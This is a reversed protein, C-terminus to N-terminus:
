AVAAGGREGGFVRKGGGGGGANSPSCGDVFASLQYPPADNALWQRVYFLSQSCPVRSGTATVEVDECYWRHHSGSGDSTLNLSCLPTSLCPGRGSFIDLNGREYYDHGEKMLGWSELDTVQVQKGKADGISLSIKSDTGGKIVYGTQVYITYVCENNGKRASM